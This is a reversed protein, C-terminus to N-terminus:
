VVWFNKPCEAGQMRTKLPMYCGCDTCIGQAADYLPCESCIKMRWEQIELDVTSEIGVMSQSSNITPDEGQLVTIPPAEGGPKVRIIGAESILTKFNDDTVTLLYSHDGIGLMGPRWIHLSVALQELEDIRGENMGDNFTLQYKKGDQTVLRMDSKVIAKLHDTKPEPMPLGTNWQYFLPTNEEAEIINVPHPDM